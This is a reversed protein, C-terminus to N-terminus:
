DLMYIEGNENYNYRLTVCRHSIDLTKRYVSERREM